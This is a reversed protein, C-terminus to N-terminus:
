SAEQPPQCGYLEDITCGLAGALRPLKDASPYAQGNEWKSVATISVGMSTALESMSIGRAERLRRIFM